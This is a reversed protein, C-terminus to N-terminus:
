RPGRYHACEMYPCGTRVAAYGCPQAGLAKTGRRCRACCPTKPPEKVEAKELWSQGGETRLFTFPTVRAPRASNNPM